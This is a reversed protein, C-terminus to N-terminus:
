RKWVKDVIWFLPMMMVLVIVVAFGGPPEINRRDDTDYKSYFQECDCEVYEYAFDTSKVGDQCNCKNM